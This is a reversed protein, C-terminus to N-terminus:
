RGVRSQLLQQVYWYSRRPKRRDTTAVNVYDSILETRSRKLAAYTGCRTLDQGFTIISRLM